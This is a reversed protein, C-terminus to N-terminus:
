GGKLFKDIGNAVARMRKVREKDASLREAVRPNTIFDVEVLIAPVGKGEAVRLVCFGNGFRSVDKKTGRSKGVKRLEADVWMALLKGRRSEDHFWVEAGEATDSGANFHLSIFVDYGGAMQGRWGLPVSVDGWRTLGTIYGMRELLWKLTLAYRWAFDKEREENWGLAGPDEGGHGPDIMIKKM